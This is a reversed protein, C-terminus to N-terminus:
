TDQQAGGEERRLADHLDRFLMRVDPMHGPDGFRENVVCMPEVADVVPTVRVLM